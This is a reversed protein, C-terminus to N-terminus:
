DWLNRFYVTFMSLAKDLCEDRYKDIERSANHYKEDIEAYEPLESMTHLTRAHKKTDQEIEEPTRLKEGFLGYKGTFEEFAIHYEKDFPNAKSCTDEHAEKFLFIMEDLVADWEEPTNFQQPYGHSTNKLETLMHPIQNLFWYDISWLDRDCYGKRIRQVCFKLDQFFLRLKKVPNVGRYTSKDFIRNEYKM